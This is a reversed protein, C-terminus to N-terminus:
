ISNALKIGRWLYDQMQEHTKVFSKKWKYPQMVHHLFLYVFIDFHIKDCEHFIGSDKNSNYNAKGKTSVNNIIKQFTDLPIRYPIISLVAINHAHLWHM